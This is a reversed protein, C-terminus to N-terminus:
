MERSHSWFLMGKAELTAVASISTSPISRPSISQRLITLGLCLSFWQAGKGMSKQGRKTSYYCFLRIGPGGGHPRRLVGPGGSLSLGGAATLPRYPVPPPFVAGSRPRFRGRCTGGRGIPVALASDTGRRFSGGGFTPPVVLHSKDHERGATHPSPLMRKEICHSRVPGVAHPADSALRKPSQSGPAGGGCGPNMKTRVFTFRFLALVLTKSEKAWDSAM